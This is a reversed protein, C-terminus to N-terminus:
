FSNRVKKGLPTLAMNGKVVSKLSIKNLHPDEDFDLENHPQYPTSHVKYPIPLNIVKSTLHCSCTFKPYSRYLRDTLPNDQLRSCFLVGLEFNLYSKEDLGEFNFDKEAHGQAGRSLCASTLMFWAFNTDKDETRIINSDSLNKKAMLRAYSKIHPSMTHPLLSPSQEEYKTMRSLCEQDILNFTDSTLFAFHEFSEELIEDGNVRRCKLDMEDQIDDMMKKSPWVINVQNILESLDINSQKPDDLGMYQGVMELFNKKDWKAGFSTTQVILKDSKTLYKSPLWPNPVSSCKHLVDAVRQPGYFIRRDCRDVHVGHVKSLYKAGFRGPHLGPVTSILHVNATHFAYKKRLNVLSPIELYHKLFATPTMGGKETADSQRQLFDCLVFGFDSGGCCADRNMKQSTSSCERSVNNPYFRQLWTGDVGQPRTLNSTSVLVVISGSQEFLIMFKPHYVGMCRKKQAKGRESDEKNKEETKISSDQNVKKEEDSSDILEIVHQKTTSIESNHSARIKDNDTKTEISSPDKPPIWQPLIQTVHVSGGFVKMEKKMYNEDCDNEMRKRRKNQLLNRKRDTCSQEKQDSGLFNPECFLKKRHKLALKEIRNGKKKISGRDLNLVDSKKKRVIDHNNPGDHTQNSSDIEDSSDDDICIVERKQDHDRKRKKSFNNSITPDREEKNKMKKQMKQVKQWKQQMSNRLGKHGHLLLTPIQKKNLHCNDTNVDMSGRTKASSDSSNRGIKVEHNNEMNVSDTSCTRTAMGRMCNQLLSSPPFLSPMERSIWHPDLVYTGVIAAKLDLNEILRARDFLPPQLQCDCKRNEGVNRNPNSHEQKEQTQIDLPNNYYPLGTPANLYFRDSYFRQGDIIIPDSSEM